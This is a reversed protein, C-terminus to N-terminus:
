GEETVVKVADGDHLSSINTCIVSDGNKVGSIIEVTDTLIEGTTITQKTAVGDQNLFVYYEGESGGLARVPLAIGRKDQNSPMKVKGFVGPKLSHDENNIKIKCQFTRSVPDATGDINEVVGGYEATDDGSLLFRAETGVKMNKLDSESVEIDAYIPSVRKVTGLVTGVNIFQGLSISKGDMVGSIPATITTDKLSDNLNSLTTQATQVGAEQATVGAKSTELNAQASSLATEANEFEAKSIIQQDYLTKERDYNRQATDLNIQVSQVSVQASQLQSQAAALQAQASKIQNRIDKDDLKALTEGQTVSQGNEFYIHIVKGGVNSSVAGEKSAELSANFTADSAIATEKAQITEVSVRNETDSSASAPAAKAFKGSKGGRGRHDGASRGICDRDNDKKEENRHRRGFIMPSILM